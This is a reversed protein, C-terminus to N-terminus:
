AKRLPEAGVKLVANFRQDTQREASRQDRDEGTEAAADEGLACVNAGVQDALDFGTNRFVIWAVRGDNGVVDAVVDAVARAHGGVEELGVRHGHHRRHHEARHHELSDGAGVVVQM